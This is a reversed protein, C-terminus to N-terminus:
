TIPVALVPGGGEGKHSPQSVQSPYIYVGESELLTSYFYL